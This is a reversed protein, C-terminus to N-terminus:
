FVVVSKIDILTKIEMPRKRLSCATEGLNDGPKVVSDAYDNQQHRNSSSQNTNASNNENVAYM